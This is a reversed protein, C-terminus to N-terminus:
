SFRRLGYRLPELASGSGTVMGRKETQAPVPSNKFKGM